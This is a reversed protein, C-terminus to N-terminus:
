NNQIDIQNKNLLQSLFAANMEIPVKMFDFKVQFLNKGKKYVKALHKKKNKNKFKGMDCFKLQRIFFYYVKFITESKMVFM